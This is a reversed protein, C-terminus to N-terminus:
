KIKTSERTTDLLRAINLEIANRVCVSRSLATTTLLIKELVAPTEIGPATLVHKKIEIFIGPAAIKSVLRHFRVICIVTRMWNERESEEFVAGEM